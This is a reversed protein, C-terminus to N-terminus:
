TKSQRQQSTIDKVAETTINHRQSGRNHHQTKPRGEDKVPKQIRRQSKIDKVTRQQSMTDRIERQQSMRVNVTRQQPTTKQGRKRKINHKPSGGGGGGGWKGGRKAQKNQITGSEITVNHRQGGETKKTTDKAARKQLTTDKVM